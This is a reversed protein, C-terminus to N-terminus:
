SWRKKRKNNNNLNFNDNRFYPMNNDHPHPVIPPTNVSTVMYPKITFSPRNKKNNNNINISFSEPLTNGEFIMSKAKNQVM